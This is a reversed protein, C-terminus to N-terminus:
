QNWGESSSPLPPAPPQGGVGSGYQPGTPPPGPQVPNASPERWDPPPSPAAGPSQPAPEQPANVGEPSPSVHDQPGPASGVPAAAAGAAPAAAPGPSTPKRRPRMLLWVLLIAIIVVLIIVLLGGGGGLSSLLSNQAASVTLTTSSTATAGDADTVTVTVTYTGGSSPSCTFSALTSACGGPLGTYAYTFPGTGGSTVVAFAVSTGSTVSDPTVSFASIALPANVDVTTNAFVSSMSADTIEVEIVYTGAASPTCALTATNTSACGSPLSTYAYQYPEVGQSVAATLTTATGATVTSPSATFSTVTMDNGVALSLTKTVTVGVQDTVSLVISYTGTTQPSCTITAYDASACGTPLGTYVYTYAGTGGTVTADLTLTQGLDLSNAGAGGRSGTFSTIVLAPNVVVSLTSPLSIGGSDNVWFAVSFAVESTVNYVHTPDAAHSGAGDGFRWSYAYPATGGWVTSSFSVVNGADTATPAASVAVLHPDKTVTIVGWASGSGGISDNAWVRVTYNGAATFVHTPSYGNAWGGDGFGWTLQIAGTGSWATGVYNTIAGVDVPSPGLTFHVVPLPHVQVLVHSTAVGGVSDNAFFTATYNGVHNFVHRVVPLPATTGDGWVWTYSFPPTGAYAAGAFSVPVTVDTPIPGGSAVSVPLRNVLVAVSATVSAVPVSSDNAWMVVTFNGAVPYTHSITHVGSGPNVTATGDGFRLAYTVPPTGGFSGIDAVVPVTADTPNPTVTISAAGLAASFNWTTPSDIYGNTGSYYNFGNFQLLQNTSADFALNGAIIDGPSVLPFQQTWDGGYYAWTDVLPAYSNDEGGYIVIGGDRADYAMMDEIWGRAPPSALPYLETWQGHLFEWTDGTYYGTNIRGGFLLDYGDGPDYVFGAVYREPPSVKPSLQMWNGASYVWTDTTFAFSSDIGSFGVVYGDKPDDALAMSFRAAPSNTPFLETWVGHLFDWTDGYVVNTSGNAGGFMLLYGDESDWTAGADLRGAPCGSVGACATADINTWVGAGSYEWTQGYQEGTSDNLGGYYVVYGDTVDYAMVAGETGPPACSQCQVYWSTPGAAPAHPSQKALSAEASQCLATAAANYSCSPSLTPGNPRGYNPLIMSLFKERLPANSTPAVAWGSSASAPSAGKSETSPVGVHSLPNLSGLTNGPFVMIGLALLSIAVTTWSLRTLRSRSASAAFV